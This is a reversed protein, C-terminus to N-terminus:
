FLSCFALSVHSCEGAHPLVSRPLSYKIVQHVPPNLSLTLSYPPNLSLSAPLITYYHRLRASSKIKWSHWMGVVEKLVVKASSADYVLSVRWIPPKILTTYHTHPGENTGSELWWEQSTQTHTLLVINMSYQTVHNVGPRSVCKPDHSCRGM